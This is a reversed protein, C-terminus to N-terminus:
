EKSKLKEFFIKKLMAMCLTNQLNFVLTGINDDNKTDKKFDDVLKDLTDVESELFIKELEQIDYEM